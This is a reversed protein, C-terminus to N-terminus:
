SNFHRNEYNLLGIKQKLEAIKAAYNRYSEMKKLTKIECDRTKESLKNIEAQIEEAQQAEPGPDPSKLVRARLDKIGQGLEGEIRAAVEPEKASQGIKSLLRAKKAEIFKAESRLKSLHQSNQQEKNAVENRLEQLRRNGAELEGKLNALEIKAATTEPLEPKGGMKAEMTAMRGVMQGNLRSKENRLSDLTAQLEQSQEGLAELEQQAERIPGLHDRERAEIRFREEMLKIKQKRSESIEEYITLEEALKAELRGMKQKQQQSITSITGRKLASSSEKQKLKTRLSAIEEQFKQIQQNQQSVKQEATAAQAWTTDSAAKLEKAKLRAEYAVTILRKQEEELSSEIRRKELDLRRRKQNEQEIKTEIDGPLRNDPLVTLGSGTTVPRTVGRGVRYERIERILAEVEGLTEDYRKKEEFVDAM